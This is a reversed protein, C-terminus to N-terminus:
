LQLFVVDEKEGKRHRPVLVDLIAEAEKIGSTVFLSFICIDISLLCSVGL